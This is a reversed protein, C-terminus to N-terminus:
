IEYAPQDYCTAALPPCIVWSLPTVLDGLGNVNQLPCLGYRLYIERLIHTTLITHGM